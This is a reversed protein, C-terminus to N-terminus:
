GPTPPSGKVSVLLQKGDESFLIDSVTGAPGTAPTTQNINLARVTNNLPTLGKLNSMLYCAVGNVAGGNAVCVQKHKSSSRAVAVPFQSRITVLKLMLHLFRPSRLKAYRASLVSRRAWKDCPLQIQKKLASLQFLIPDLSHINCILKDSESAAFKM